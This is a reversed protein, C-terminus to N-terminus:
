TRTFGRARAERKDDDSIRVCDLEAARRLRNFDFDLKTLIRDAKLQRKLFRTATVWSDTTNGFSPPSSVQELELRSFDIAGGPYTPLTPFDNYEVIVWDDDEECASKPGAEDGPSPLEDVSSTSEAMTSPAEAAPRVVSTPEAMSSPAEAAPRVVTTPEALASPEEAASEAVSMPEEMSSPTSEALSSPTSEALIVGDHGTRCQGARRGTIERSIYERSGGQGELLHGQVLIVDDDTGPIGIEDPHFPVVMLGLTASLQSPGTFSGDRGRKRGSNDTPRRRRLARKDLSAHTRAEFDTNADHTERGVSGASTMGPENDDSDNGM